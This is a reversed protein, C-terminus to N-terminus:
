TTSDISSVTATGTRSNYLTGIVCGRCPILTFQKSHPTEITSDTPQEIWHEIKATMKSPYKRFCRDYLISGNDTKSAIWDRRFKAHPDINTIPQKPISSLVLGDIEMIQQSPPNPCIKNVLEKYWKPMLGGKYRYLNKVIDWRPLYSGDESLLQSLFLLRRSKLSICAQRYDSIYNLLPVSGGGIMEDPSYSAFSINLCQANFLASAIMDTRIKISKFWPLWQEKSLHTPLFPLWMSQQLSSLRLRYIRGILDQSNLNCHLLSIVDQTYRNFLSVLNYSHDIEVAVNPISSVLSLKKKLLKHFKSSIKRCIRETFPTAQMLYQCKLPLVINHLYVLQRDTLKKCALLSIFRNYESTIQEHVFNSKHDM